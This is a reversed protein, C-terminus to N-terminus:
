DLYYAVMGDCTCTVTTIGFNVGSACQTIPRDWDGIEITDLADLSYVGSLAVPTATTHVLTVTGAVNANLSIGLITIKRGTVAAIVETSAGAAINIAAFKVEHGGSTFVAM